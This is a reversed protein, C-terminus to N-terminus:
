FLHVYVRIYMHIDFVYAHIHIYSHIYPYIYTKKKLNQFFLNKKKNFCTYMYAYIRVYTLICINIHIYTRIYPHIYM